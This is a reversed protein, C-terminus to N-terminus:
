RFLEKEARRDSQAAIASCFDFAKKQQQQQQQQQVQDSVM